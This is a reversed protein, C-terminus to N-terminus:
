AQSEEAPTIFAKFRETHNTHGYRKGEFDVFEGCKTGQIQIVGIQKDVLKFLAEINREVKELVIEMMDHFDYMDEGIDNALSILSRFPGLADYIIEEQLDTYFTKDDVEKAM